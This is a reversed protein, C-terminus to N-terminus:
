NTKRISWRSEPILKFDEEHKLFYITMELSGINTIRILTMGKVLNNYCNQSSVKLKNWSINIDNTGKIEYNDIMENVSVTLDIGNLNTQFITNENISYFYLKAIEVAIKGVHSNKGTNPYKLLLNNLQHETITFKLSTM